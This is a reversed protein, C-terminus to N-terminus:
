STIGRLQRVYPHDQDTIIRDAFGIKLLNSLSLDEPWMPEVNIGDAVTVDYDSDTDNWVMQTWETKSQEYAAYATKWCKIKDSQNVPWLSIVGDPWSYVVAITVQRIRGKLVPHDKMNPHVYFFEDSDGPVTLLLGKDFWITEHCRFYVNNRPKGVTVNVKLQKRQVKIESVKRLTDLDDFISEPPPPEVLELKPASKENPKDTV